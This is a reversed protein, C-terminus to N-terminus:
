SIFTIVAVSWPQMDPTLPLASFTMTMDISMRDFQEEQLRMPTCILNELAIRVGAAKAYPAIEDFSKYM